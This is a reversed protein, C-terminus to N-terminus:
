SMGHSSFRPSCPKWELNGSSNFIRTLESDRFNEKYAVIHSILHLEFMYLMNKLKIVLLCICFNPCAFNLVAESFILTVYKLAEKL